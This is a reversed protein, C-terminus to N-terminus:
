FERVKGIELFGRVYGVSCMLLRMVVYEVILIFKEILDSNMARKTADSTLAALMRPKCTDSKGLEAGDSTGLESGDSTGLESGESTGLSAGLVKGLSTGLRARYIHSTFNFLDIM